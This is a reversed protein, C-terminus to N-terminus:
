SRPQKPLFQEAAAVVEKLTSVAPNLEDRMTKFHEQLTSVAAETEHRYTEFAAGLRQNLDAMDEGQGKLSSIIDQLQKLVAEVSQREGGLMQAASELANRSQEANAQAARAIIGLQSDTSDRLAQVSRGMQEAVGRVPAVSDTLARASAGFSGSANEAAQAGDKVADAARRLATGNDGILQATETMKQAIDQLPSFIKEGAAASFEATQRGISEAAAATQQRVAEAGQGAAQELAERVALGAKSMGEAADAIARAGEGTNDRIGQLSEQMAALLKETGQNLMNGASQASDQMNKQMNEAAQSLRAVAEGMAAGMNGSSDNMRDVLARMQDGAAALRSSAQELAQGIGESLNGAIDKVMSGVGDNQSQSLKEMAPEIATRISDGIVQPLEERLPRGLDAVAELILHEMKERSDAAAELQRATLYELSIYTFRSELMRNLRGLLQNIKGGCVRLAITFIISFLLGTLSMIFKASAVTLLQKLAEDSNHASVSLSEGMSSLASILGLFTCFLGASVFLGPIIKYFGPDFHLDERNFFIQPRATSRTQTEGNEQHPFTTKRYEEWASQLARRANGKPADNEEFGAVRLVSGNESEPLKQLASIFDNLAHKNASYKRHYFSIFAILALLFLIVVYGAAPQYKLLEAVGLIGKVVLSAFNNV